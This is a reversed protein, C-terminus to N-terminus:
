LTNKLRLQGSKSITYQQQQLQQLLSWMFATAKRYVGTGQESRGQAISDGTWTVVTSRLVAGLGM